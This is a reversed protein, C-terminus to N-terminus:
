VRTGDFSDSKLEKGFARSSILGLFCLVEEPYDWKMQNKNQIQCVRENWPFNFESGSSNLPSYM